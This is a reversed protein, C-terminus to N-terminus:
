FIKDLHGYVHKILEAQVQSGLIAKNAAKDHNVIGMNDCHGTLKKLYWYNYKTAAKIVFLGTVTGLAEAQYIDAAGSKEVLIVSIHIDTCSCSLVFGALCLKHAVKRM